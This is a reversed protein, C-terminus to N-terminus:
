RLLAPPSAGRLPATGRWLALAEALRDTARGAAPEALASTGDGILTAFRVADIRDPEVDIAYGGAATRIGAARGVAARLRSVYTRLSIDSGEPPDGGWLEALRDASIIRGRATVLLALLARQRRGGLRLPAGDAVAEVPGLIRLDAASPM